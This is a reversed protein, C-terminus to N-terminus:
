VFTLMVKCTVKIKDLVVQDNECDLWVKAKDSSQYGLLNLEGIIRDPLCKASENEETRIFLRLDWKKKDVDYRVDLVYHDKGIFCQDLYITSPEDFGKGSYIAPRSFPPFSNDKLHKLYFVFTDVQAYGGRSPGLQKQKLLYDIENTQENWHVLRLSNDLFGIMEPYRVFNSRWDSDGFTDIITQFSTEIHSKDFRTDDFLKKIVGRQKEAEDKDKETRDSGRLIRKWSYDRHSNVVFSWYKGVNLLYDGKTLLARHWLFNDAEISPVIGDPGFVLFAKTKYELFSGFFGSNESDTWRLEPNKTYEDEIGSFKLLFGIQGAFYSHQEAEYIASKWATDKLILKAKIREEQIQLRTFRNIGNAEDTLFDYIQESFESLRKIELVADIYDKVNDYYQNESLNFIVRLWRELKESDVPESSPGNTIFLVYAYFRLLKVYSLENKMVSIFFAEENYYYPQPNYKQLETADGTKKVIRDLLKVTLNAFESDLCNLKEYFLFSLHGKAGDGNGRLVLINQQQDEGTKLPRELAAYHNTILVRFFNMLEDDFDNDPSTSNRFEWFLDAWDTDVKHSFYEKLTKYNKASISLEPELPIAGFTKEFKAKFSEFATLPKGRSNMKIYLEETLGLHRLNLMQFTILPNEIQVLKEYKNISGNFIEHISDLMVLMARITPDRKWSDFYWYQDTIAESFKSYPNVVLQNGNKILADCFESASARTEYRFRSANTRGFSIKFHEWKNDKLALYFHLLFLTTLRQQGDLPIFAQNSTSSITGYVFDLDICTNSEIHKYLTKLFEERIESASTRGQAYDRQIIPIRVDLNLDSFIQYLSVQKGNETIEDISNM